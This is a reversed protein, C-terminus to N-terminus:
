ESASISSCPFKSAGGQQSTPGVTFRFLQDVYTLLNDSFCHIRLIALSSSVTKAEQLHVTVLINEHLESFAFGRTLKSLFVYM